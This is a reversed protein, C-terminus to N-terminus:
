VFVIAGLIGFIRSIIKEITLDTWVHLRPSLISLFTANIEQAICKSGNGTPIVYGLEPVLIAKM